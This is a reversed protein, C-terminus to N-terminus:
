LFYLFLMHADLSLCLKVNDPSLILREKDSSDSSEDNNFENLRTCSVKDYGHRYFLHKPLSSSSM